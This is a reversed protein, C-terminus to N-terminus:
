SSSMEFRQEASRLPISFTIEVEADVLHAAVRPQERRDPQLGLQDLDEARGAVVARLRRACTRRAPRPTPGALADEGALLVALGGLREAEIRLDVLRRDGGRGPLRREVLVRGSPRSSSCSCGIEIRWMRSRFDSRAGISGSAPRGRRRRWAVRDHDRRHREARLALGGEAGVGLGRLPDVDDAHVALAALDAVHVALVRQPAALLDRGPRKPTM